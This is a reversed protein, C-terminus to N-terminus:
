RTLCSPRGFSSMKHPIVAQRANRACCGRRAASGFCYLLACRRSAARACRGRRQTSRVAVFRACFPAPGAVEFVAVAIDVFAPMVLDVRALVDVEVVAQQVCEGRVM